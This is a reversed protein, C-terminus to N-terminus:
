ASPRRRGRSRMEHVALALDDAMRAYMDGAKTGRCRHADKRIEAEYGMWRNLLENRETESM